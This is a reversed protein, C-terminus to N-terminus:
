ADRMARLYADVIALVVRDAFPESRVLIHVRGAEGAAKLARQQRDRIPGLAPYRDVDASTLLRAPTLEVAVATPETSV